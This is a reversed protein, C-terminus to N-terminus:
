LVVCRSLGQVPAAPRAGPGQAPADARLPARALAGWGGSKQNIERGIILTPFPIYTRGVVDLATTGIYIYIDMWINHKRGHVQGPLFSKTRIRVEKAQALRVPRDIGVQMIQITYVHTDSM